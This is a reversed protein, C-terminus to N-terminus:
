VSIADHSNRGREKAGELLVGRVNVYYKLVGGSGIGDEVEEGKPLSTTSGELVANRSTNV